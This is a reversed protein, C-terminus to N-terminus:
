FDDMESHVDAAIEADSERNPKRIANHTFADCFVRLRNGGSPFHKLKRKYKTDM